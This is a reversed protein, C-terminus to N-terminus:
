KQISQNKLKRKRVKIGGDAEIIQVAETIPKTFQRQRPQKQESLM